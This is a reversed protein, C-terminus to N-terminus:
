LFRLKKKHNGKNRQPVYGNNILAIGHLISLRIITNKTLGFDYCIEALKDCTTTNISFTRTTIETM